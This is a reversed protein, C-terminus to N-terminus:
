WKDKDVLGKYFPYLLWGLKVTSYVITLVEFVVWFRTYFMRSVLRGRLKTSM